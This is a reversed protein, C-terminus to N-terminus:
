LFEAREADRRHLKGDPEMTWVGRESAPRARRLLDALWGGREREADRQDAPPHTDTPREYADRDRM